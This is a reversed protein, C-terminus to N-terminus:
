IKKKQKQKMSNFRFKNIEDKLFAFQQVTKMEDEACVSDYCEDLLRSFYSFSTGSGMISNYYNAAKSPFSFDTFSQDIAESFGKDECLCDLMSTQLIYGNNFDTKYRRRFIYLLSNKDLKEDKLSEYLLDLTQNTYRQVIGEELQYYKRSVVHKEKNYRAISIGDYIKVEKECDDIGGFRYLHTFEHVMNHITRVVENKSNRMDILLSRDEGVVKDTEEDFDLRRSVAANSNDLSNDEQHNNLRDHAIEVVPKEDAYITLNQLIGPIKKQAMDQDKLYLAMVAVSVIDLVEDTLNGNYNDIVIQRCLNLMEEM